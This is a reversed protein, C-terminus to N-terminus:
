SKTPQLPRCLSSVVSCPFHRESHYAQRKQVSPIAEEPRQNKGKINGKRTNLNILERFRINM